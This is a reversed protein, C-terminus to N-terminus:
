VEQDLVGELGVVFVDVGEGNSRETVVNGSSTFFVGELNPVKAVKTFFVSDEVSTSGDVLDGEVRNLLPDSSGTFITDV